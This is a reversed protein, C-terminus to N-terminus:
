VHARGIKKMSRSFKEMAKLSARIDVLVDFSLVDEKSPTAM